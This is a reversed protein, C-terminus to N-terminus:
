PRERVDALTLRPRAARLEVGAPGTAVEGLVDRGGGLETRYLRSLRYLHRGAIREVSVQWRGCCRCVM